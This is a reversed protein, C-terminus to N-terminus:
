NMIKVVPPTTTCFSHDAPPPENFGEFGGQIRLQISHVTYINRLNSKQTSQAGSFAVNIWFLADNNPCRIGLSTDYIMSVHYSTM